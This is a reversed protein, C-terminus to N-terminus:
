ESAVAFVRVPEGVGKLDREGRDEFSVGASTRALDRVTQSVLVEGPASADAIRSAINVAGGFVNDDERIVDGAHIGLHLPLGASDGCAVCARAAAIAERASAFTALVGDGLLKGEIPTGDHDRIASRLAGDLERARERFAADGLRETLATSDAIDAFLIVATGSALHDSRPRIKAEIGLFDAISEVIEASEFYGGRANPFPRLKANRLTSALERALGISKEERLLRHPPHVVLTEASIDRLQPRVDFRSAASWWAQMDDATISAAVFRAWARAEQSTWGVAAHAWTQLFMEYDIESIAGLALQPTEDKWDSGGLAPAVIVLKQIMSPRSAALQLAPISPQDFGILDFSDVALEAVVAEIDRVQAAQEVDTVGRDSLGNNRPDFRVVRRSRTLSMYWQRLPAYQWELTLHSFSMPPTILLSRGEGLTWYAIRVGDTTRAYRISPEITGAPTGPTRHSQSRAAPESLTPRVDAAAVQAGDTLFEEVAARGAENEFLLHRERLDILRVDPIDAWRVDSGPAVVPSRLVLTPARMKALWPTWDIAALADLILAADRPGVARRAYAAWAKAREADRSSWAVGEHAYTDVFLDWDSDILRRVALTRESGYQRDGMLFTSCLVLKRVQDPHEAAVRVMPPGLGYCGLLDVQPRGLRQIVAEVDSTLETEGIREVERDSLGQCRPDYRVVTRRSALREYWRVLDPVRLELSIHSWGLQPGMILPPDGQGMTWYAISVGDATKAYQVQPEM